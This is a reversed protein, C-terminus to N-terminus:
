SAQATVARGDELTKLAAPQCLAPVFLTMTTTKAEVAFAGIRTPNRATTKRLCAGRPLSAGHGGVKAEPCALRKLRNIKSKKSAFRVHKRHVLMRFHSSSILTRDEM